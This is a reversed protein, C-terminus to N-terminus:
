KLNAARELFDSVGWQSGEKRHAVRGNKDVLFTAMTHNITGDEEMTLIGFRRLLDECVQPDSNTLLHFNELGIEYGEAYQRLVGPSDFEPDFTISVFHLNELGADAARKQLEAMRATSAPCMEPLQCRTFIFNMVFVKNRLERIQLFGGDENIMAFEPLYDGERVFKRRSLLATEKRFRRNADAMAKAGNGDLPFIAELHWRESYFDAKAGIKRSSYDIGADGPGVRFVVVEGASLRVDDSELLEVAFSRAEADVEVVRGEIQAGWLPLVGFLGLFCLYPFRFM